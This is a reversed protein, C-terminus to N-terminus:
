TSMEEMVMTTPIRADLADRELRLRDREENLHKGEPAVQTRFFGQLENRASASRDQPSQKLIKVLRAPPHQTARPDRAASVSLRFRGLQHQPHISQFDLTVALLECCGV